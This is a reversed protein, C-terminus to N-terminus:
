GNDLARGGGQPPSTPAPPMSKIQFNVNALLNSLNYYDVDIVSDNSNNPNFVERNRGVHSPVELERDLSTSTMIPTPQDSASETSTSTTSFSSLPIKKEQLKGIIQNLFELRISAELLSGFYKDNITLPLIQSNFKQKTSGVKVIGKNLKIKSIQGTKIADELVIEKLHIVIFDAVELNYKSMTIELLDLLHKYLDKYYKLDHSEKVNIGVQPGLMYNIGESYLNYQYLITYLSKLKLNFLLTNLFKIETLERFPIVVKTYEFNIKKDILRDKNNKGNYLSLKNKDIFSNTDGRNGINVSNGKKNNDWVEPCPCSSFKRNSNKRFLSCAGDGDGDGFLFPNIVKGEIGLGFRFKGVLGQSAGYCSM